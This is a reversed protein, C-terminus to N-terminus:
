VFSRDAVSACATRRVLKCHGSLRCCLQVCRRRFGCAGSAPANVSREMRAM